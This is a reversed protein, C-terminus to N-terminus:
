KVFIIKAPYKTLIIDNTLIPIDEALSQALIIRDFPDKHHAPMTGSLLIYESTINIEEYGNELLGKCLLAADAQYEVRSLGKKILIEWISAASFFLKNSEDLIYESAAPPTMGAAVRLLIQTDILLRM